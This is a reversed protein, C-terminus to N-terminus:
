NSNPAGYPNWWSLLTINSSDSINLIELGAYDVAVYALSDDIVVNNYARPRNLPIYMAPNCYHGSEFPQLKNSCNIIRFGGADYCLYVKNNKVEMGRANIKSPDPNSIPPFNIDPVFTSLYQINSKQTVDLLVLGHGMAGLYATNGEVKVIGCGGGSNPMEWSDLVLPSFPNFVDVIAMGANQSSNFTNGLALYLYTGDQSLNMVELSDYLSIPVTSVLVPAALNSIDYIRLGAEKNAVYLYPRNLQDHQMTMVMETCVSALSSQLQLNMSSCSQAYNIECNLTALLFLFILKKM